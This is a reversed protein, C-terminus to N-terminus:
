LRNIVGKVEGKLKQGAGKLKQAKGEDRVDPDASNQKVDGMAKNASGKIKDTFEGM